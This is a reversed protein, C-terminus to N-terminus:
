FSHEFLLRYQHPGGTYDYLATGLIKTGPKITYTFSPGASHSDETLSGKVEAGLFWKEDLRRGMGSVYEWEVEEDGDLATEAVLNASWVMGNEWLYTTILKAEVVEEEGDNKKIELYAAPLIRGFAQEGFRYKTEVKWGRYDFDGGSNDFVLYPAVMWRDNIGYELELQIQAAHGETDTWYLEFEKEGKHPTFWDYTYSFHRRHAGASVFLCAIAIAFIWHLRVSSFNLM